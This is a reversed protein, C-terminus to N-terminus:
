EIYTDKENSFSWAITAYSLLAISDWNNQYFINIKNGLEKNEQWQLYFYYSVWFLKWIISSNISLLFGMFFRYNRLGVCNGVWPCQHDFRELCNYRM